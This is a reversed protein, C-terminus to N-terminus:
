AVSLARSCPARSGQPLALVQASAGCAKRLLRVTAGVRVAASSRTAQVPPKTPRLVSEPLRVPRLTPFPSAMRRASM